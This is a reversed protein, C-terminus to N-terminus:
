HDIKSYLQNNFDIINEYEYEEYDGAFITCWKIM